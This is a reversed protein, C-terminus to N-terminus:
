EEDGVVAGEELLEGRADDLEVAADDRVPVAVVVGEEDAPLVAELRLLAHLREGVFFQCLLLLPDSAPHLGLTRAGGGADVLQM